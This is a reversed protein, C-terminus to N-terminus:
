RMKHAVVELNSGLLRLLPLRILLDDLRRALVYGARWGPVLGALPSSIFDYFGAKCRFGARTFFAETELRDLEREDATQYKAMLRPVLLKGVAGSLRRRSPDIAYFVGGPALVQHAMGLLEQLMADPLHHLLFVALIADFSGPAFGQADLTGEEFRVNGVGARQADHRAQRIAAPSLDIGVVEAVHPALLLETDGIGCGLSLVRSAPGAGTAALFRRATHRRLAQVATRAFHRQAFGAYLKEHYELERSLVDKPDGTM